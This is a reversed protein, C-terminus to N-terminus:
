DADLISAPPKHALASHPRHNNYYDLWAPLAHTRHDSSQYTAAYSWERLM